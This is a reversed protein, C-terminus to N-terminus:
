KGFDIQSKADKGGSDKLVKISNSSENEFKQILSNFLNFLNSVEEDKALTQKIKYFEGMEKSGGGFNDSM